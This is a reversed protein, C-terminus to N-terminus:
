PSGGATSSSTGALICQATPIVFYFTGNPDNMCVQGVPTKAREIRITRKRKPKHCAESENCIFDYTDTHLDECYYEDFYLYLKSEKSPSSSSSSSISSCPNPVCDTGHGNYTGNIALCDQLTRVTCATGSCCAGSSTTPSCPNPTCDTGDGQYIGSISNCDGKTGMTCASGSCCAGSSSSSTISCPNPTCDTGDGQYTGNITNCDAQTGITCAAGSCCAGSPTTLSSSSKCPPCPINPITMPPGVAYQAAGGACWRDQLRVRAMQGDVGCKIVPPPYHGYQITFELKDGVPVWGFPMRFNFPPLIFRGGWTQGYDDSFDLVPSRWDCCTPFSTDIQPVVVKYKIYLKSARWVNYNPDFKLSPYSNPARGLRWDMSCWPSPDGELAVTGVCQGPCSCSSQSTGSCPNPTCDTGIGKWTWDTGALCDAQSVEKCAGSSCCAGILGNCPNPSCGVGVGRWNGDTYQACQSSELMHCHSSGSYVHCCAGLSPAPQDSPCECSGSYRYTLFNNFLQDIPFQPAPCGSSHCLGDIIVAKFKLITDGNFDKNGCDADEQFWNYQNVGFTSPAPLNLWDHCHQALPLVADVLTTCNHMAKVERLCYRMSPSSPPTPSGSGSADCVIVDWPGMGFQVKTHNVNYHLDPGAWATCTNDNELTYLKSNQGWWPTNDIIIIEASCADGYTNPNPPWYLKQYNNEIVNPPRSTVSVANVVLTHTYCYADCGYGVLRFYRGTTTNCNPKYPCCSSAASVYTPCQGGPPPGQPPVQGAAGTPCPPCHQICGSISSSSKSPIASVSGVCPNAGTCDNGYGMWVGGAVNSACQDSTIVHCHSSGSYLHCCAGVGGAPIISSSSSDICCHNSALNCAQCNGFRLWTLSASSVGSGIEFEYTDWPADPWDVGVCGQMSLPNCEWCIPKDGYALQQSITSAPSLIKQGPNYLMNPHWTVNHDTCANSHWPMASLSSKGGGGDTKDVNFHIGRNGYIAM